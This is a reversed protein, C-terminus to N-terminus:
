SARRLRPHIRGSALDAALLQAAFRGSRIVLPVGGGPQTGGGAFYLGALNKARPMPRHFPSLRGHPSVGYISGGPAHYRGRLEDPGVFSEVEIRARVDPIAAKEIRRLIRERLEPAQATWDVRGSTAPANIMAFVSECGEPARTPDTRSPICLYVTPDEPAQERAFLDRFELPYTKPFLVTHHALQDLRGRVGLLLVAGSLGLEQRAHKDLGARKASAPDLLRQGVFVPDANSVVADFATEAGNVVVGRAAGDRIVIREVDAGPVFTVGTRQALAAIERVLAGIGGRPYWAGEASELHLIMAFAAPSAGPGGGSYTAYREVIWRLRESGLSRRAVDGLTGQLLGWKLAAMSRGAITKGFQVFGEYPRELFPVGTVEYIQRATELLAGFRPADSPELAAIRRLTEARDDLLDLGAGDDFLYRCQLPLRLFELHKGREDGAAAFLEDVVHPMTLLSPGTDFSYGRAEFRAAKGGPAANKEFLTVRHGAAALHVAASLGGLGAGIVAVELSM